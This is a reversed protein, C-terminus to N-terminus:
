HNQTSSLFIYIFFIAALLLILGMILKYPLTSDAEELSLEDISDSGDSDLLNKVETDSFNQSVHLGSREMKSIIKLVKERRDPPMEDISNYSVGDIEFSMPANSKNSHEM